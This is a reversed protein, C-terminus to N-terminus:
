VGTRGGLLRGIAALDLCYDVKTGAMAAQPMYSVEATAPDQVIALGGREKVAALGAAGDGNAGTLVVGILRPGYALAASEFLVDLSPRAFHVKADVSLSFTREREILLHYGSPAVYITGASVAEKEEAEKVPLACRRGLFEILYDGSGPYLHQVVVVAQPLDKPLCPLVEALAAFGGASSGFVIADYAPLM